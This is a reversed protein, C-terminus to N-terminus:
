GIRRGRRSRAIAAFGALSALAALVAIVAPDLGPSGTTGVSTNPLAKPAAAASPVATASTGGVMGTCTSPEPQDIRPSGAVPVDFYVVRLTVSGTGENRALAVHNGPEIVGQGATINERVCNTNYLSLTGSEVYVVTSGPHSHWGSHGGPAYAQHQVFVDREAGPAITSAAAFTSRQVIGGAVSFTVGSGAPGDPLGNADAGVACAPTAADSRVAGGVPVDFYVVTLLLPLTGENRALQVHGGGEFTGRNAETVTKTCANSYINLTGAQVLIVAGGPHTHWGTHGGPAIMLQQIVGQRGAAQGTNMTGFTARAVPTAVVMSGPTALAITGTLMWTALSAVFSRRKM